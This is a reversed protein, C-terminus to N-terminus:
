FQIAEQASAPFTVIPFIQGRGAGPWFMAIASKFPYQATFTIPSQANAGAGSPFVTSNGLLSTLTVMGTDANLSQMRIQLGNPDLGVAANQIVTAINAVTVTCANPTAACSAGHVSAYRTGQKLAYAMTQYAWMGRSVEFISILAFIIPIGVLTMEITANGRRRGKNGM